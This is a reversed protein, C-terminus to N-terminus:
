RFHVHGHSTDPMHPQQAHGGARDPPGPIPATSAHLLMSLLAVTRGTVRQVDILGDGCFGMARAADVTATVGLATTIAERLCHRRGASAPDHSIARATLELTDTAGHRARDALSMPWDAAARQVAILAARAAVYAACRDLSAFECMYADGLM